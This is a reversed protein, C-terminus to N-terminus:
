HNQQQGHEEPFFQPISKLLGSDMEAFTVMHASTLHLSHPVNQM